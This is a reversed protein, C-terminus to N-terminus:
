REVRADLGVNKFEAVLKEMEKQSFPELEELPYNKGIPRYKSGAAGNYPLLDVRKIDLSVLLDITEQVNQSSTNFGPIVPVRVIMEKGREKLRELNKLILRNSVGTLRIHERENMHKIDYLFLDVEDVEKELLSWAV